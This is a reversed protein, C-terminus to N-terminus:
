QQNKCNASTFWTIGSSNCNKFSLSDEEIRIKRQLRLNCRISILTSILFMINKRVLYVDIIDGGDDGGFDDGGVNNGGGDDDVISSDGSSDGSGDGYIVVVVMLVGLMLVMMGGDGNGGSGDGGGDGGSEGGGDGNGCGIARSNSIKQPM